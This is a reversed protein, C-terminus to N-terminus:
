LFLYLSSSYLSIWANTSRICVCSSASSSPKMRILFWICESTQSTFLMLAHARESMFIFHLTCDLQWHQLEARNQEATEQVDSSMWNTESTQLQSVLNTGSLQSPATQFWCGTYSLYLCLLLLLFVPPSSLLWTLSSIFSLLCSLFPYFIFFSFFFYFSSSILSLYLLFFPFFLSSSLLFFCLSFLTLFILLSHHPLSPSPPSSLPLLPPSRKCLPLSLKCLPAVGIQM